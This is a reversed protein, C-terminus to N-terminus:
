RKGPTTPVCSFTYSSEANLIRTRSSFDCLWRRRDGDMACTVSSDVEFNRVCILQQRFKWPSEGATHYGVFGDIVRIWERAGGHTDRNDEDM